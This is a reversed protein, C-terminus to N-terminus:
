VVAIVQHGLARPDLVPQAPMQQREAGLKLRLQGLPAEIAVDHELPYCPPQSGEPAILPRTHRAFLQTANACKGTLGVLELALEM